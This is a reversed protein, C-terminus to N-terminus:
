ESAMRPKVSIPFKTSFYWFFLPYLVAALPLALILGFAFGVEADGRSSFSMPGTLFGVMAGNLVATSPWTLLFALVRRQFRMAIRAELCVLVFTAILWLM